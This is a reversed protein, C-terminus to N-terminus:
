IRRGREGEEMRLVVGCEEQRRRGVMVAAVVAAAAAGSGGSERKWIGLGAGEEELDGVWSLRHSWKQLSDAPMTYAPMTYAPVIWGYRRLM